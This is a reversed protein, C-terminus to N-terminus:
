RQAEYAALARRCNRQLERHTRWRRGLGPTPPLGIRDPGIGGVLVGHEEELRLVGRWSWGVWRELDPYSADQAFLVAPGPVPSDGGTVEVPVPGEGPAATATRVTSVTPIGDRAGALLHDRGDTRARPVSELAVMDDLHVILRPLYWWHERSLMPSDVLTRSPPYRRLEQTILHEQYFDGDPDIQLRVDARWAAPEFASGTGRPDRLVLVVRGAVALQHAWRVQDFTLALLVDEGRTLPLVPAVAPAGDNDIWALDGVSSARVRQAARGADRDHM